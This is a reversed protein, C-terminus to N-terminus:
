SMISYNSISLGNVTRLGRVSSLCLIFERKHVSWEGGSDDMSVQGTWFTLNFNNQTLLPLLVAIFWGYSYQAPLIIPIIQTTCGNTDSQIFLSSHLCCPEANLLCATTLNIFDKKKKKTYYLWLCDNFIYRVRMYGTHFFCDCRDHNALVQVQLVQLLSNLQQPVTFVSPKEQNMLPILTTHWCFAAINLGTVSSFRPCGSCTNYCLGAIESEPSTGHCWIPSTNVKKNKHWAAVM